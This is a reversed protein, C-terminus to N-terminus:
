LPLYSAGRWAMRKLVEHILAICLIIIELCWGQNIVFLFVKDSM